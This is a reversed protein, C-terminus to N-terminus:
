RVRVKWDVPTPPKTDGVLRKLDTLDAELLVSGQIGVTPENGRRIFADVDSFKSSSRLVERVRDLHDLVPALKREQTKNWTAEAVRCEPCFSVRARKPWRVVCGEHYSSWAHPFQNQRADIEDKTWRNLGHTVPVIGVQLPVNHVECVAGPESVDVDVRIFLFWFGGLLLVFLGFAVLLTRIPARPAPAPTLNQNM